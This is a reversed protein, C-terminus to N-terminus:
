SARGAPRDGDQAPQRCRGQHRGRSGSSTASPRRALRHRAALPRHVGDGDGDHQRHVSRRLRRPDPLRSRRDAQLEEDSIKGAKYAGIAEYVSRVTAEKGTSRARCSRAATSAPLRPHQAPGARAFARAADQRLRRSRDDRRVHARARGARGLRRDGRPLHALDEDGRHGDDRRRLHRDTNMEMPVGGAARVGEKVAHALTRLGFNCPMTEIWTNAILIMPKKLDEDTLGIGKLMARAGAREVGDLMNRSMHRVDFAGNGNAGKGNTSAM